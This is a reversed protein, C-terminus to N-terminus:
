TRAPTSPTRGRANALRVSRHRASENTGEMAKGLTHDAWPWVNWLDVVWFEERPRACLEVVERESWARFEPHATMLVLADSERLLTTDRHGPVLPDYVRTIAGERDLVNLLPSSLNDRVDDSGAKFAIGLVTIRQGSLSGLAARLDHAVHLVLNENTKIAAHVILGATTSFALTATDKGLCPGRSPGPTPIGGRPYATNAARLIEYVDAGYQEAILAFENALGFTTYRFANLYLKALEAEVTSVHLIRKERSLTSFLAEVRAATHPDDAGVIEPLTDIDSLADGQVLREPCFSPHFDIGPVWGRELSVRATVVNRTFHPAVTSRVVLTVGHCLHATVRDLVDFYQDFRFTYDTGLPTGLTLVVYEAHAVAPVFGDDAYTLPNFRSSRACESLIADCGVEYFPMRAARLAEIKSADVDVLAVHHGAQWLKLSLPLGVHGVGICLVRSMSDRGRHHLENYTNVAKHNIAQYVSLHRCPDPQLKLLGLSSRCPEASRNLRRSM